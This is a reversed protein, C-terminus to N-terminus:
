QKSKVFLKFLSYYRYFGEHILNFKSKRRDECYVPIEMIRKNNRNLQYLLAQTYFTHRDIKDFFPRIASVRYAKAGISYDRFPMKLFVNSCKIFLESAMLRFIPRKQSGIHKSGIVADNSKLSEVALPIFNLDTTLDADICILQDFRAKKMAEWFAIGPGRKPTHFFVVQDYKSDLRRGIEETRDTSGNSGLLIEYPLDMRDLFAILNKVNEELIKEENYLPIFFTVASEM